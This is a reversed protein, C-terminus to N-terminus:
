TKYVELRMSSIYNLLGKPSFDLKERNQKARKLFHHHGQLGSVTGIWEFRKLVATGSSYV